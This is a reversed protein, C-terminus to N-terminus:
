RTSPLHAVDALTYPILGNTTDYVPDETIMRHFDEWYLTASHDGAPRRQIVQCAASRANLPREPPGAAHVSIGQGTFRFGIGSGSRELLAEFSWASGPAHTGVSMMYSRDAMRMVAAWDGCGSKANFECVRPKGAKTRLVYITHVNPANDGTVGHDLGRVGIVNMAMSESRLEGGRVEIEARLYRFRELETMQTLNVKGMGGAHGLNIRRVAAVRAESALAMRDEPAVHPEYGARLLEERYIRGFAEVARQGTQAASNYAEARDEPLLRHMMLFPIAKRTAARLIEERIAVLPESAIAAHV